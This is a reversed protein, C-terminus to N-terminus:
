RPLASAWNVTVTIPLASTGSGTNILFRKGDHTPHYQSGKASVPFLLKPIGATFREAAGSVHVAMLRGDPVTAGFPLTSATAIYFLESGDRRWRPSVGGDTSIPWRNNGGSVARVYVESRGTETSVYALWRGNPSVRGDTDDGVTRVLPVPKADGSRAVQLLDLGTGPAVDHFVIFSGVAGDYWDTVFQVAASPGVLQQAPSSDNLRKVHVHPAGRRASAFALQQGDPSFVPSWDITPDFTVSTPKGGRALDFVQIDTTGARRDMVDTAVLTEDPSLGTFGYDGPEGIDTEESGDRRLWVLRSQTNGAQYALVGNTSVSFDAQGLDRLYLLNEAVPMPSGTVSLTSLDFPQALLTGERVFLLYGPDAYMARSYGQLVIKSESSDLSGVRVEPQKNLYLAYFLFHRGDPLFSPWHYSTPSEPELVAVPTGGNAGVRYVGPKESGTFLITDNAGWTALVWPGTPTDCITQPAGGAVAVRMMKGAAFFGLSRSDPSWFPNSAGDSGAVPSLVASGLARLFLRPGTKTTVAMALTSGDPSIVSSVGLIGQFAGGDPARVEFRALREPAVPRQAALVALGIAALTALTAVIWPIRTRLSRGDTRTGLGLAPTGSRTSVGELAFAVDRASQFRLDPPKELCHRAIRELAAPSDGPGPPIDPPDESIIASLTEIASARGFPRQGSLMEYLVVGLSFIDSRHDVRTGRAQEPSMYGVTGVLMGPDTTQKTVTDAALEACGAVSAIGFDLIKLRGERTVFLNEPKLDRHVIGRDHAAALGAAIDTGLRITRSASLPTGTLLARLTTGELLEYVVYPAGEHQGTDHVVIVNPHNLAGTARAEQEFRRLRDPDASFSSPLIKIAVDRGLREDKARYVEGMGGEGLATLVEYRGLRTGTPLM